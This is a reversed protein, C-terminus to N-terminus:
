NPMISLVEVVFNDDNNPIGSIYDSYNEMTVTSAETESALPQIAELKVNNIKEEFKQQPTSEPPLVPNNNSENNKRKLAVVLGVALVFIGAALAFSWASWLFIKEKKSLKSKKKTEDTSDNSVKNNEKQPSSQQEIPQNNNSSTSSNETEEIPESKVEIENSETISDTNSFEFSEENSDNNLPNKNKDEM